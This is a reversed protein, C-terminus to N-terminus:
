THCACVQGVCRKIMCSFLGTGRGASAHRLVSSVCVLVDAHGIDCYQGGPVVVVVVIMVVMVGSVVVGGRVYVCVCM